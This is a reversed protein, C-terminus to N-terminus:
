KERTATPTPGSSGAPPPAGAKNAGAALVENVVKVEEGADKMRNFERVKVKKRSGSQLKWLEEHLHQMLDRCQTGSPLTVTDQSSKIM